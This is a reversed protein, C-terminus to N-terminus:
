LQPGSEPGNAYQALGICDCHMISVVLAIARRQTPCKDLLCSAKFEIQQGKMKWNSSDGQGLRTRPTSIYKEVQRIILLEKPNRSHGGTSDQLVLGLAPTVHRQFARRM